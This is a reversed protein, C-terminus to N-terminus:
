GNQLAKKPSFGQFINQIKFNKLLVDVFQWRIVFVESLKIRVALGVALLCNEDFVNEQSLFDESIKKFWSFDFVSNIIFLFHLFLKLTM